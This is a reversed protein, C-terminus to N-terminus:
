FYLVYISRRKSYVSVFHGQYESCCVFSACMWPRITGDRPKKRSGAVALENDWLIVLPIQMKPDSLGGLWRIKFNSGGIAPKGACSTKPFRNIRHTGLWDYFVGYKNGIPNSCIQDRNHHRRAM